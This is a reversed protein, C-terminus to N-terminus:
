YCGEVGYALAIGDFCGNSIIAEGEFEEAFLESENLGMVLIMEYIEGGCVKAIVEKAAKDSLDKFGDEPLQEDECVSGMACEEGRDMGAGPSGEMSEGM